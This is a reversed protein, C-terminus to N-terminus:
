APVTGPTEYDGDALIEPIVGDPVTHGQAIHERLHDAMAEAKPLSVFGNKFKCGCCEYGDPGSYVYVDSGDWGFRCYSM